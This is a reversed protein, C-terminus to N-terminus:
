VDGKANIAAIIAERVSLDGIYNSQHLRWGRGTTSDRCAWQGGKAQLWDLLATDSLEGAQSPQPATPLTAGALFWKWDRAVPPNQYTGRRSRKFGHTDNAMSEFVERLEDETASHVLLARELRRGATIGDVYADEPAQSPQAAKKVIEELTAMDIESGHCVLKDGNPANITLTAPHRGSRSPQALKAEATKARDAWESVVDLWGQHRACTAVRNDEANWRCACGQPKAPEVPSAGVCAKVYEPVALPDAIAGVYWGDLESEPTPAPFADRCAALATAYADREKLCQAAAAAVTRLQDATYGYCASVDDPHSLDVPEPMDLTCLKAIVAAEVARSIEGQTPVHTGTWLAEIESETLIM